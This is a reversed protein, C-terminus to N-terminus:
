WRPRSLLRAFDRRHYLTAGTTFTGDGKGIHVFAFGNAAGMAVYDTKLDGNFDGAAAVRGDASLVTPANFNGDGNGTILSQRGYYTLATETMGTSVLM